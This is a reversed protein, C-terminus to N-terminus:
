KYFLYMKNTDDFISKLFCAELDLCVHVTIFVLLHSSFPDLKPINTFVNLSKIASDIPVLFETYLSTIPSNRSYVPVFFAM